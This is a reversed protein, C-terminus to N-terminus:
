GEYPPTGGAQTLRSRTGMYFPAIIEVRKVTLKIRMPCHM